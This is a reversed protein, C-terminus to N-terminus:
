NSLAEEYMAGYLRGATEAAFNMWQWELASLECEAIVRWLDQIHERDTNGHGAYFQTQKPTLSLLECIKRAYQAGFRAGIGELVMAVALRAFPVRLAVYYNFSIYDQCAPPPLASEVSAAAYGTEELDNLVWRWHSKEEEAHQLLYEKAARLNPSCNVSALAFTFPTERVQHFIMRLIRHYDALELDGQDLKQCASNQPFEEIM